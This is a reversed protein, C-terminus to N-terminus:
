FYIQSSCFFRDNNQKAARKQLKKLASDVMESHDFVLNPIEDLSYWKGGRESVLKKDHEGIRILAFYAM